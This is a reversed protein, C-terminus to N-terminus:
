NSIFRGAGTRGRSRTAAHANATRALDFLHEREAEDFQLARAIAELVGDSAGVLNGRELRTYYVNSVGALTAM